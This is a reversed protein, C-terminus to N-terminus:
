GNISNKYRMTLGVMLGNWSMQTLGFIFARRLNNGVNNKYKKKKQNNNNNNNGFPAAYGFGFGYGRRTTTKVENEGDKLQSLTRGTALLYTYVLIEITPFMMKLPYLKEDFNDTKEDIHCELGNEFLKSLILAQIAANTNLPNEERVEILLRVFKDNTYVDPANEQLTQIGFLLDEGQKDTPFNKLTLMKVFRSEWFKKLHNTSVCIILPTLKKASKGRLGEDVRQAYGGGSTATYANVLSGKLSEDKGQKDMKESLRLYNIKEAFNLLEYGVFRMIDKWRCINGYNLTCTLAIRAVEKRTFMTLLIHLDMLTLVITNFPKGSQGQELDLKKGLQVTVEASITRTVGGPALDNNREIITEELAHFVCEQVIKPPVADCKNLTNLRDFIDDNKDSSKSGTSSQNTANAAWSAM